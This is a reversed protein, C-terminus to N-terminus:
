KVLYVHVATGSMFEYTGKQLQILTSGDKFVKVNSVSVDEGFFLADHYGKMKIVKSNYIDYVYYECFLADSYGRLEGSTLDATDEKAYMHIIPDKINYLETTEEYRDFTERVYDVGNQHIPISFGVNM